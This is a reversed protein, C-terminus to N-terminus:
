IIKLEEFLKIREKSALSITSSETRIQRMLIGSHLKSLPYSIAKCIRVLPLCIPWRQLYPYEKILYMKEPFMHSWASRLKWRLMYLFYVFYPKDRLLMRRNYEMSADQREKMENSGMYGGREIDEVLQNVLGRDVDKVGRFSSPDFGGYIVVLKLACQVLTSYRLKEMTDWFREIDIHERHHSFFLAVDLIMRITLGSGIFHKIMHLVLFILQDTYGLTQTRCGDIVIEIPTETQYDNENIGRFWVDAVIEDYLHAHIEVVGYKSHQCVGQHSTRSRPTVKFGKGELYSYIDKEQKPNILLDVDVSERVEPYAYYGAIAYGKLVQIRFNAKQLDNILGLVRQRRILNSASINRMSDLMYEKMDDPCAIESSNLLACAVLPLVHHETACKVFDGWDYPPRNVSDGKAGASAFRIVSEMTTEIEPIQKM